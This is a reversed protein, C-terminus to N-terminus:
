RATTDGLRLQLAQRERFPQESRTPCRGPARTRSGLCEPVGALGVVWREEPRLVTVSRTGVQVLRVPCM